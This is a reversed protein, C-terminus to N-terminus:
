DRAGTKMFVFTNSREKPIGTCGDEAVSVPVAGAEAFIRFIRNQPYVHMEMGPQLNGNLYDALRFEYGVRYTPVQFYAIGGPRLIRAFTKIIREIVPPPNHQLVILSYIVDVQPLEGLQDLSRLHTWDIGTIGKAEALAQAKALHAASIDVATVREFHPALHRTVRGLGCGYELCTRRGDLSLDLRALAKKFREIEAKGSAFFREIAVDEPQGRYEPATLVSWFPQEEGFQHWSRHVHEFLRALLEPSGDSEVVNPPEGGHLQIRASPPLRENFEPSGLFSNRLQGLDRNGEMQSAIVGENEPERGLLLRYAWEVAERSVGTELVDQRNGSRMLRDVLKKM